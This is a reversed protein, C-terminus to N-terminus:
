QNIFANINDSVWALDDFMIFHKAQTNMKVTANKVHKFQAEYLKKVQEHESAQSFGGSAGLMLIFTNSKSIAQRLDTTMVDYMAQGATSPDSLRAMEVIKAQDNASTAQINIGQQTQFAIQQPSMNAFMTKIGIAQPTLMSATTANSRTFIPGIFPLGDISVVKGIIDEYEVALMYATLGGMSHGIIHPKQLGQTNIYAAIDASLDKLSFAKGKPTGAFGKVSVLHVQYEAYFNQSLATFVSSNSMLGPILILPTGTNGQVEVTFSGHDSAHNSTSMFLAIIGFLLPSFKRM